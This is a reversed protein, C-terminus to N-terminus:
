IFDENLYSESLVFAYTYTSTYSLLYMSCSRNAPPIILIRTDYTSSYFMPKYNCTNSYARVIRWCVNM